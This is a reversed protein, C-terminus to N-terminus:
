STPRTPPPPLTSLTQSLLLTCRLNPDSEGLAPSPSPCLSAPDSTPDEDPFPIESVRRPPLVLSYEAHCRPNRFAHRRPLAVDVRQPSPAEHDNREFPFRSGLLDPQFPMKIGKEGILADRHKSPHVFTRFSVYSTWVYTTPRVHSACTSAVDRMWCWAVSPLISPHVSPHPVLADVVRFSPHFRLICPACSVGHMDSDFTRSAGPLVGRPRGAMWRGRNGAADRAHCGIWVHTAGDDATSRKSRTADAHANATCTCTCDLSAQVRTENTRRRLQFTGISLLRTTPDVVRRVDAAKDRLVTGHRRVSSPPCARASQDDATAFSRRFRTAGDGHISRSWGSVGKGCICRCVVPCRERHMQEKQTCSISPLHVKAGGHPGDHKGKANPHIQISPTCSSRPRGVAAVHAMRACEEDHHPSSQRRTQRARAAHELHSLRDFPARVNPRSAQRRIPPFRARVSPGTTACRGRSPNHFPRSVFSFACFKAVLAAASAAPSTCTRARSLQVSFSRAFRAFVLRSVTPVDFVDASPWVCSGNFSYPTGPLYAEASNTAAELAFFSSRTSFSSLVTRSAPFASTPFSSRDPASWSHFSQGNSGITRSCRYIALM